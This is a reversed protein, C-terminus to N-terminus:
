KLCSANSHQNSIKKIFTALLYTLKSFHFWGISCDNEADANESIKECIHLRNGSVMLTM